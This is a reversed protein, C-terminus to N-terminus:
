IDHNDDPKETMSALQEDSIPTDQEESISELQEAINENPSTNFGEVASLTENFEGTSGTAKQPEVSSNNDQSHDHIINQLAQQEDWNDSTQVDNLFASLGAESKPANRDIAEGESPNEKRDLLQEFVQFLRNEITNDIQSQTTEIRCGGSTVNPDSGVQWESKFAVYDQVLRADDPNLYITVDQAQVPLSKIAENVMAVLVNHDTQAQHGIVAKSVQQVLELMLSEIHEERNVIPEILRHMLQQLQMVQQSLVQDSLEKAEAKAQILGAEYGEQHGQAAGEEQGKAFGDQYGSNLGEERGMNFGEEHAENAIKELADASMVSETLAEELTVDEVKTQTNPLDSSGSTVENPQGRENNQTAEKVTNATYKEDDLRKAGDVSPLNWSTYNTLESAPIRNRKDITM